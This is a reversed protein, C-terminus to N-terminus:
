RGSLAKFSPVTMLAIIARSIVKGTEVVMTVREAATVDDLFTDVLQRAGMFVVSNMGDGMISSCSGLEQFRNAFLHEFHLGREQVTSGFHTQNAFSTRATDVVSNMIQSRVPDGFNDLALRDAVALLIVIFEAFLAVQEQDNLERNWAQQFSGCEHVAVRVLLYGVDEAVKRPGQKKAFFSFPNM